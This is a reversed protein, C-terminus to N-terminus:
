FTCGTTPLTAPHPIPQQNYIALLLTQPCRSTGNYRLSIHLHYGGNRGRSRGTNGSTMIQTGAQITAGPAVVTTHSTGHCYTWTSGTADAITVGIGCANCGPTGNTCGYTYWNHGFSHISTITGTAVAYVPTGGAVAWDWAPYDHHPKSLEAPSVPQGPLAFGEHTGITGPQCVSDQEPQDEDLPQAEPSAVPQPDLNDDAETPGTETDQPTAPALQSYITLWKTQYQRPTLVNGASRFPVRDWEDASPTHGIYWIPGILTVDGGTTNLINTVHNIAREDQVAPPANVARQYGGHGGWTADTFQYAGSASSRPAKAKYNGGSEVQRITALVAAMNTDGVSLCRNASDSAAGALVVVLGPLVILLVLVLAAWFAALAVALRLKWKIVM